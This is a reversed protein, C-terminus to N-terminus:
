KPEDVVKSSHTLFIRSEESYTVYRLIFIVDHMTIKWVNRCFYEMRGLGRNIEVSNKSIDMEANM